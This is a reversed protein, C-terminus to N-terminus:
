RGERTGIDKRELQERLEKARRILEESMEAEKQDLRVREENLRLELCEGRVTFRPGETSVGTMLETNTYRTDKRVSQVKAVFFYEPFSRVNTPLKEPKSCTLFFDFRPGIIGQKVLHLYHKGDQGLWVDVLFGSSVIPRGVMRDQLDLTWTSMRLNQDWTDDANQAKKLAGIIEDRKAKEKALREQRVKDEKTRKQTPSENNCAQLCVLVTLM